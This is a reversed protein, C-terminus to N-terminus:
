WKQVSINKIIRKIKEENINKNIVDFLTM